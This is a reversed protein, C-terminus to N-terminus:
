QFLLEMKFIIEKLKEKDNCFIHDRKLDRIIDKMEEKNYFYDYMIEGNPSFWDFLNTKKNQYLRMTKSSSSYIDLPVWDKNNM